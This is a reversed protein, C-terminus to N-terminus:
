EINYKIMSKNFKGCEIYTRSQNNTSTTTSGSIFSLLESIADDPLGDIPIDTISNSKIEVGQSIYLCVQSDDPFVYGSFGDSAYKLINDLDRISKGMSFYTMLFYLKETSDYLTTKGAEVPYKTQMSAKLYDKWDNKKKNHKRSNGSNVSVPEIDTILHYAM